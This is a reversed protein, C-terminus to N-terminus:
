GTEKSPNRQPVRFCMQVPMGETDIRQTGIGYIQYYYYNTYTGCFLAVCNIIM